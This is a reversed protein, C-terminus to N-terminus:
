QRPVRVVTRPSTRLANCDEWGLDTLRERLEQRARSIRSAVTGEPIQLTESIESYSLDETERLILIARLEPALMGLARELIEHQQNREITSVSGDVPENPLPKWRAAKNRRVHQLSENVAIRYLWTGVNARGSFEHISRFAKLFTEQSVDAADQRGVIRAAVRFVTAAFQEYLRREADRDGRQCGEVTQSVDNPSESSRSTEELKNSAQLAGMRRPPAFCIAPTM